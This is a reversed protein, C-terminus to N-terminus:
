TGTVIDGITDVINGTLEAGKKYAAEGLNKGVAEAAEEGAKGFITRFVKLNTKRIKAMFRSIAKLVGNKTYSTQSDKLETGEQILSQVEPAKDGAEKKFAELSRIVKELYEDILLQRDYEFPKEDADPDNSSLTVFVEEEYAKLIPDDYVSRLNNYAKIWGVWRVFFTKVNEMDFVNGVLEINNVDGPKWNIDCKLVGDRMISTKVLFVFDSQPDKDIIKYLYEETPAKAVLDKHQELLPEILNLVQLPIQKKHFAM